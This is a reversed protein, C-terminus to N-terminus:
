KGNQNDGKNDANDNSKSADQVGTDINEQKVDAKTQYAKLQLSLQLTKQQTAKKNQSTTLSFDHVTVIRAMNVLQSLFNGLDNYSGVVEINIPEEVYDKQEIAQGIAIDIVEVKSLLSLQSIQEMLNSSFPQQHMDPLQVQLSQNSADLMALQRKYESLHRTQLEKQKYNELLVQKRVEAIKIAAKKSSIPFIWLLALIIAVIFGHVMAKIPLSWSGYNQMDLTQIERRLQRLKNFPTFQHHMNVDFDLSANSIQKNRKNKRSFM